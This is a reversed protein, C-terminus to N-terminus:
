GGAAPCPPGPRPGAGGPPPSSDPPHGGSLVGGGPGRGGGLPSVGVRHPLLYRTLPNSSDFRRSQRLAVAMLVRYGREGGHSVGRTVAMASSSSFRVTSPM